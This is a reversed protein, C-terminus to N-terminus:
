HIRSQAVLTHPRSAVLTHPVLIIYIYIYIYIHIYIYIYIGTCAAASTAGEQATTNGEPCRV